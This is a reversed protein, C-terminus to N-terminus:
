ASSLMAQSALLDQRYSQSSTGPSTCPLYLPAYEARQLSQTQKQGRNAKLQACLDTCIQELEAQLQPTVQLFIDDCEPWKQKVLGKSAAAGLLRKQHLKKKGKFAISSQWTGQSVPLSCSTTTLAKSCPRKLAGTCCVAPASVMLIHTTNHERVWYRHKLFQQSHQDSCMLKCM